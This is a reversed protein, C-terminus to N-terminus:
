KCFLFLSVSFSSIIVLLSLYPSPYVSLKINVCVCINLIFLCPPSVTYCFSSQEINQLLRFSFSNSFYICVYIYVQIDKQIGYVLESNNILSVGIYFKKLFKFIHKPPANTLTNLKRHRLKM